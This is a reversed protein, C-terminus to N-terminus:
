NHTLFKEVSSRFKASEDIFIFHGSKQFVELSSNPISSQMKTVASLPIADANGHLILVPFSFAKISSYYDYTTLDPTLGTFLAQSAKLYNDPMEFNLKKINSPTFFSHKFALMLLQKYADPKSAKFDASALITARDTSDQKTLKSKQNNGMEQDFEKNLPVPNCLIIKKVKLPYQLGYAVVPIAGWSHGLLNIKDVGLYKRIADIDDAFFKLSLSGDSPQAISNGVSLFVVIALLFIKM